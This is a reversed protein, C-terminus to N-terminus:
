ELNERKLFANLNQAIIKKVVPNKRSTKNSKSFKILHAKELRQM